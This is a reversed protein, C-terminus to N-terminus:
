LVVGAVILVMFIILLVIAIIGLAGAALSIGKFPLLSKTIFALTIAVTALIMGVAFFVWLNTHAMGIIMLMSTIAMVLALLSLVLGTIQSSDMKNGEVKHLRHNNKEKLDDLMKKQKPFFKKVLKDILPEKKVTLQVTKTKPVHTTIQVPIKQTSLSNEIMVEQDVPATQKAEVRIRPQHNKRTSFSNRSCGTTIIIMLIILLSTPLARKMHPYM